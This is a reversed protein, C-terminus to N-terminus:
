ASPRDSSRNSRRVFRPSRGAIRSAAWCRRVLPRPQPNLAVTDFRHALGGLLAERPPLPQPNLAVTDFRHSLTGFMMHRPPLPQPNLAM